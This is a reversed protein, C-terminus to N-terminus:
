KESVFLNRAQWNFTNMHGIGKKTTFFFINISFISISFQIMRWAREHTSTDHEKQTTTGHVMPQLNHGMTTPMSLLTSCNTYFCSSVKCLFVKQMFFNTHALFSEQKHFTRTTSRFPQFFYKYTYKKYNKKPIIM